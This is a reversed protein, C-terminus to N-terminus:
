YMGQPSGSLGLILPSPQTAPNRLVIPTGARWECCSSALAPARIKHESEDLNGEAHLGFIVHQLQRCCMVVNAAAVRLLDRPRVLSPVLDLSNIIQHKIILGIESLHLCGLSMHIKDGGKVDLALIM